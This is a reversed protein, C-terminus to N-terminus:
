MPAKRPKKEPRPVKIIQNYLETITQNVDKGESM